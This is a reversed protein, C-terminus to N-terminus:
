RWCRRAARGQLVRFAVLVIADPSLACAASGAAFVVVGALFIRRRGYRDGLAGSVPILAALSLAYGGIVWELGGSSVQLERQISPLAVNVITVDLQIMFTAVCMALLTLRRRHSETLPPRRWATPFVGARRRPPSIGPDTRSPQGTDARVM